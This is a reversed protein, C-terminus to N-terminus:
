PANGFAAYNENRSETDRVVRRVAAALVANDSILLEGLLADNIEPLPGERDGTEGLGASKDRVYSRWRRMAVSPEASSKM